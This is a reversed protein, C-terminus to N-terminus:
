EPLVATSQGAREILRNIISSTDYGSRPRCQAKIIALAADSVYYDIRRNRARRNRQNANKRALKLAAWEARDDDTIVPTGPQWAM